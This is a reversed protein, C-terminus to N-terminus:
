NARSRCRHRRARRRRHRSRVPPARSGPAGLGAPRRFRRDASTSRTPRPRSDGRHDAARGRRVSAAPRRRRPAGVPGRRGPNRRRDLRRCRRDRVLSASSRNWRLMARVTSPTQPGSVIAARRRTARPASAAGVTATTRSISASARLAEGARPGGTRHRHSRRARRARRHWRATVSSHRHPRPLAAGGRHTRGPRLPSRTRPRPRGRSRWEPLERSRWTSRRPRSTRTSRRDAARPARAELNQDRLGEDGAAGTAPMRMGTRRSVRIGATSHSIPGGDTTTSCVPSSARVRLSANLRHTSSGTSRQGAPEVWLKQWLIHVVHVSPESAPRKSGTDLSSETVRTM